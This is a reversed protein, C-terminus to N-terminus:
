PDLLPVLPLARCVTLPTVTVKPPPKLPRATVTVGENTPRVGPRDRTEILDVYGNRGIYGDTRRNGDGDDDVTRFAIRLFVM